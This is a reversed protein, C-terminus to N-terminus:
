LKSQVDKHNYHDLFSELDELGVNNYAKMGSYIGSPELRNLRVALERLETATHTECIYETTAKKSTNLKFEILAKPTSVTYGSDSPFSQDTPPYMDDDLAVLVFSNDKCLIRVGVKRIFSGKTWLYRAFGHMASADPLNSILTLDCFLPPALQLQYELQLGLMRNPSMWITEATESMDASVKPKTDLCALYFVTDYRRPLIWPTLWNSWEILSYIDPVCGLERCMTIFNFANDHVRERWQNLSADPSIPMVAPPVSGPPGVTSASTLDKNKRALLVGTEEFLERIACIRFAVEEPLSDGKDFSKYIPLNSSSKFSAFNLNDNFLSIWDRCSDAHDINGGPLAHVNAMFGSQSSRKVFLFEMPEVLPGNTKQYLLPVTTGCKTRLVSGTGGGSSLLLQKQVCLFIGASNRWM